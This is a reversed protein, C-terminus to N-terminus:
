HSLRQWQQILGVLHFLGIVLCILSSWIWFEPTRGLPSSVFYFGALGRLLYITTILVLILRVLPLKIILGAASLAYCSWVFLVTFIVLTIITPQLQGQAAMLAMQEVAGFFRYWSAGFYICGM